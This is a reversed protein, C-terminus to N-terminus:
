GHSGCGCRGAAASCWTASARTRFGNDAGDYYHFALTGGAVPAGGSGRMSGRVDLVPSGGGALLARGSRQVDAGGTERGAPGRGTVAM